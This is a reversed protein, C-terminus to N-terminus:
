KEESEVPALVSDLLDTAEGLGQVRGKDWMDGASQLDVAEARKDLEDRVDKVASEFGAVYVRGKIDGEALYARGQLVATLKAIEDAVALTAYMQARRPQDCDLFWRASGRAESM